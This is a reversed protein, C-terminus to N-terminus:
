QKQLSAFLNKLDSITVPKHLVHIDQPLDLENTSAKDHATMIVIPIAPLQMKKEFNRILLTAASANCIPMNWDLLITAITDHNKFYDETLPKGNPYIRSTKELKELQSAVVMQLTEDDEAVLIVSRATPSAATSSPETSPQATLTNASLPSNTDAVPRCPIHCWFATGHLPNSEFNIDGGLLHCLKKSLSLSIGIGRQMRTTSSDPQEFIEFIEPKHSEAIGDGTDIIDFRIAYQENYKEPEVKILIHGKSMNTISYDLVCDLIKQTINQEGEILTPTSKEIQYNLTINKNALLREHSIVVEDIMQKINFVTNNTKWKGSNVRAYDLLLNISSLLTEASEIIGEVLQKNDKYIPKKRAIESLGIIGVLPTRLEHSVHTLFNKKAESEAQAQLITHTSLDKESNMWHVRKGIALGFLILQIATGILPLARTIQSSPLVGAYMLFIIIGAVIPACLATLYFKAPLYGQKIRTISIAVLSPLTIATTPLAYLVLFMTDNQLFPLPSTVLLTYWFVIRLWKDSKPAMKKTLLYNRALAIGFLTSAIAFIGSSSNNWYLSEPWVMYLMGIDNLQLLTVCLTSGFLQLYVKERTALGVLLSYLVLSIIIGALVGTIAQQLIIINFIHDTDRILFTSNYPFISGINLHVTQTSSAPIQLSFLIEAGMKEWSTLPYEMGGIGILNHPVGTVDMLEVHRVRMNELYISINKTSTTQNVLNLCAQGQHIYATDTAELLSKGTHKQTKIREDINTSSNSLYITKCNETEALSFSANAFLALFILMQFLTRLKIQCNRM